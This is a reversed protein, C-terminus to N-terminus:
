NRRPTERSATSIFIECCPAKVERIQCRTHVKPDAREDPPAGKGWHYYFFFLFVIGIQGQEEIVTKGSAFPINRLNQCLVLAYTKIRAFDPLFGSQFVKKILHKKLM